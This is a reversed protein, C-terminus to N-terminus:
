NGYNNNSYNPDTFSSKGWVWEGFGKTYGGAGSFKPGEAESLYGGVSQINLGNTADGMGTRFDYQGGSMAKTWTNKGEAWAQSSGGIDVFFQGKNVITQQPPQQPQSDTAFSSAVPVALMITMLVVGIM